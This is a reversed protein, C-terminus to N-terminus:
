SRKLWDPLGLPLETQGADHAGAHSGTSNREAELRQREKVGEIVQKVREHFSSPASLQLLWSLHEFDPFSRTREGLANELSRLRKDWIRLRLKM